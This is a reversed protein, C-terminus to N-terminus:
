PNHCEHKRPVGGNTEGNSDERVRPKDGGHMTGLKGGVFCALPGNPLRHSDPAAGGSHSARRVGGSFGAGRPIIGRVAV